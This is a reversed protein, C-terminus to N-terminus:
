DRNRLSNPQNNREIELFLMAALIIMFVTTLQFSLIEGLPFTLFSVLSGAIILSEVIRRKSRPLPRSLTYNLALAGVLIWLTLDHTNLHPSILLTVIITLAFQLDFKMEAPQWKGRWSWILPLVTIVSALTSIANVESSRNPGMLLRFLGRWNHMKPYNVGYAGDILPSETVILRVYDGFGQWGVLFLSFVVLIIAIGGFAAAAKWRKKALLILAFVFILQPKYLGLALVAGAAVDREKKLLFFTLTLTLLTISANQGQMLNVFYPFFSLCALAITGRSITALGSPHTTFLRLVVLLLALNIAMMAIFARTYPLAGLPLFPLVFFPPHIFPLLDAPPLRLHVIAHQFRTQTAFDYLAQGYGANVIRAATYVTLFDSDQGIIGADLVRQGWTLGYILLLALFFITVISKKRKAASSHKRKNSQSQCMNDTM